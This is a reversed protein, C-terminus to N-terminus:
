ICRGNLLGKSGYYFFSCEGGMEERQISGRGGKNWFLIQSLEVGCAYLLPLEWLAFRHKRGGRWPSSLNSKIMKRRKKKKKKACQNKKEKACQNLRLTHQKQSHGLKGM